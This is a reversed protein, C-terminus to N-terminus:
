PKVPLLSNERVQSVGIPIDKAIQAYLQEMPIGAQAAKREHQGAHILCICLTNVLIDHPAYEKSLAKTLALGAARTVTTPMALAAHYNKASPEM